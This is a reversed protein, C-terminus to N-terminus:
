YGDPQLGRPLQWASLRSTVGFARFGCNERYSCQCLRYHIGHCQHRYPGGKTEGYTQHSVVARSTKPAIVLAVKGYHRYDDSTIGCSRSV